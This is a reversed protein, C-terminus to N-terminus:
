LTSAERVGPVDTCRCHVALVTEVRAVSILTVLDTGYNINIKTVLEGESMVAVNAMMM